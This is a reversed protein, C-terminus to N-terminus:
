APEGLAALSYVPVLEGEIWCRGLCDAEREPWPEIDTAQVRHLTPLVADIRIALPGKRHRAVLCLTDAGDVVARLRTAFDYVTLVEDGRRLLGAVHAAGSPVPMAGPWPSVGGVEEARAALRHGGISFRLLAVTQVPAPQESKLGRLTKTM